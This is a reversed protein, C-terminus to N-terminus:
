RPDISVKPAHWVRHRSGDGRTVLGSTRKWGKRRLANAATLAHFGPRNLRVPEVGSKPDARRYAYDDPHAERGDEVIRAYCGFVEHLSAGDPFWEAFDAHDVNDVYTDLVIHPAIHERSIRALEEAAERPFSLLGVHRKTRFLNVAEAWLQERNVNFYEQIDSGHACHLLIFRTTGSPDDPLPQEENTTALIVATRRLAIPDRRYALRETDVPATLVAKLRELSDRRRISDCESWEVICKGLLQEAVQKSGALPNFHESHYPSPVTGSVYPFMGRAYESKGINQPGSLIVTERLQHGPQFIRAVASTWLYEGAWRARLSDEVGFCEIFTQKLRPEGDWVFKTIYELPPHATHYELVCDIADNWFLSKTRFPKRELVTPVGNVLAVDPIEGDAVKQIWQDADEAPPDVTEGDLTLYCREALMRQLTRAHGKGDHPDFAIWGDSDAQSLAAPISIRLRPNTVRWEDRYNFVNRRVEIGLLRMATMLTYWNFTRFGHANFTQTGREVGREAVSRANELDADYASADNSAAAASLIENEVLKHDYEIGFDGLRACRKFLEDNRQGPYYTDDGPFGVPATFQMSTDGTITPAVGPYLRIFEAWKERTLIFDRSVKAAEALQTFTQANHIAIFGRSYRYEGYQWSRAAQSGPEEDCWYWCHRGTPRRSTTVALPEGFHNQLLRLASKTEAETAADVDIALMGMRAPVVGLRQLQASVTGIDPPSTSWWALADVPTLGVFEPSIYGAGNRTPRKLSHFPDHERPQPQVVIEIFRAGALHLTSLTALMDSM